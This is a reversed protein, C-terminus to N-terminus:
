SITLRMLSNCIHYVEYIVGNLWDSSVVTIERRSIARLDKFFKLPFDQLQNLICWFDIKRTQNTQVLIVIM